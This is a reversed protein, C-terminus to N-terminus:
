WEKLDLHAQDYLAALAILADRAAEKLGQDKDTMLGELLGLTEPLKAARFGRAIETGVAGQQM